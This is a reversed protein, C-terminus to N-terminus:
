ELSHTPGFDALSEKTEVVLRSSQKASIKSLRSPISIAAGCNVELQEFQHPLILFNTHLPDSGFLKRSLGSSIFNEDTLHIGNRGMVHDLQCNYARIIFCRAAM